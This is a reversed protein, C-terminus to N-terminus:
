FLPAMKQYPCVDIITGDAIYHALKNPITLIDEAFQAMETNTQTHDARLQGHLIMDGSSHVGYQVRHPFRQLWFRWKEVLELFSKKEMTLLPFYQSNSDKFQLKLGIEKCYISTNQNPNTAADFAERCFFNWIFLVELCKGEQPLSEFNRNKRSLDQLMPECNDFIVDIQHAFSLTCPLSGSTFDIRIFNVFAFYFFPLM